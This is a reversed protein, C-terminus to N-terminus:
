WCNSWLAAPAGDSTQWSFFIMRNRPAHHSMAEAKTTAPHPPVPGVVVVCVASATLETVGALPVVPTATVEDMEAVKLSTIFPDVKVEEVKVSV